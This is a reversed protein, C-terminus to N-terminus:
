PIALGEPPKGHLRGPPRGVLNGIELDDGLRGFQAHHHDCAAPWSTGQCQCVFQVSLNKQMSPGITTSVRAGRSINL